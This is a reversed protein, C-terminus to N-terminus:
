RLLSRGGVVHVSGAAKDWRCCSRPGRELAKAGPREWTPALSSGTLCRSVLVPILLSVHVSVGRATRPLAGSMPAGQVKETDDM